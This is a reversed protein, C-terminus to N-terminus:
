TPRQWFGWQPLFPMPPKVPPTWKRFGAEIMLQDEKGAFRLNQKLHTLQPVGYSSTVFIVGGPTLMDYMERIMRPPDVVHELVETCIGGSFKRDPRFEHFQVDPFGLKTNLWASFDRAAQNPEILTADPVGQHRFFAVCVGDSGGWDFGGAAGGAKAIPAIMECAYYRLALSIDNYNHINNAQLPEGSKYLDLLKQEDIQWDDPFTDHWKNKDREALEKMRAEVAAPRMSRWLSYLQIGCDRWNAADFPIKRDRLPQTLFSKAKAAYVATAVAQQINHQLLDIDRTDAERIRRSLDVTLTTALDAPKSALLQYM